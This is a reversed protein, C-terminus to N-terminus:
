RSSIPHGLGGGMSRPCPAARYGSHGEAPRHGVGPVDHRDDVGFYGFDVYRPREDQNFDIGGVIVLLDTGARGPDERTAHVATRASDVQGVSLWVWLVFVAAAADWGMLAAYPASRGGRDGSGTVVGVVGMVVFRTRSRADAM